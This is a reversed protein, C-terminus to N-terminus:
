MVNIAHKEEEKKGIPPLSGSSSEEIDIPEKAVVVVASLVSSGLVWYIIFVLACNYRVYNTQSRISCMRVKNKARVTMIYQRPKCGEFLLQKPPPPEDVKLFCSSQPLPNKRKERLLSRSM